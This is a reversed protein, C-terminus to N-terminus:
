DPRDATHIAADERHVRHAYLLGVVAGKVRPLLLLTLAALATLLVPAVIWPSAQWVIPFLLIPAIVLHGVLLITFYAPGDDSPYRDLHLGCAPCERNVKLYRYFLAGEGCHPCRQRLGRLLSLGVARDTHMDGM